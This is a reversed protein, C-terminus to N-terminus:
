DGLLAYVTRRDTRGVSTPLVAHLPPLEAHATM